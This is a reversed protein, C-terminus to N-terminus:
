LFNIMPSNFLRLRTYVFRECGATARGLLCKCGILTLQFPRSNPSLLQKSGKSDQWSPHRPAARHPVEETSQKEDTTSSPLLSLPSSLHNPLPPFEPEPQIFPLHNISVVNMSPYMKIKIELYILM